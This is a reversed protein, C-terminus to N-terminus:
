SVDSWEARMLGAQWYFFEEGWTSALFTRGTYLQVPNAEFRVQEETAAAAPKAKKARPESTVRAPKDLMRTCPRSRLDSLAAVLCLITNFVLSSLVSKVISRLLQLQVDPYVLYGEM